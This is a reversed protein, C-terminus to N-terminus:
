EKPLFKHIFFMPYFFLLNIILTWIARTSFLGALPIGYAAGFLAFFAHFLYVLVHSLITALAVLFVAALMTVERDTLKRTVYYVVLATITVAFIRAGFYQASFFELLLGAVFSYWLVEAFSRRLAYIVVALLVLEPMLYASGSFATLGASFILFLVFLFAFNYLYVKRM